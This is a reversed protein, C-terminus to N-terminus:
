NLKVSTALDPVHELRCPGSYLSIGQHLHYASRLLSFNLRVRLWGLTISYTLDHKETLLSALHKLFTTTLSSAGGSIIFVLRTFSAREVECIREEYLNRKVWEHPRYSSTPSSRNSPANPNFIGYQCLCERVLLGLFRSAHKM